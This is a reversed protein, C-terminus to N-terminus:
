PGSAAKRGRPNRPRQPKPDIVGADRLWGRLASRAVGLEASVADQAATDSGFDRRVARYRDVAEEREEPTRPRCKLPEGVGASRVWALVTAPAGVGLQRAIARACAGDAAYAPRQATWLGIAQQRTEPPYTAGTPGAPSDTGRLLQRREHETTGGYIGVLYPGAALADALCEAAVPCGACIRKATTAGAGTPYFADPDVGSGPACAAATRWDTATM